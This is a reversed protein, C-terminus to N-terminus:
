KWLNEANSVVIDWVERMKNVKSTKRGQPTSSPKQTNQPVAKAKGSTKPDASVRIMALKTSSGLFQTYDRMQERDPPDNSDLFKVEVWHLINDITPAKMIDKVVIVDAGWRGKGPSEMFQHRPPNAGAVMLPQKTKKDYIVEAKIPCKHEMVIDVLAFIVQVAKQRLHRLGGWLSIVKDTATEKKPAKGTAGGIQNSFCCVKCIVSKFLIPKKTYVEYWAGVSSPRSPATPKTSGSPKPTTSGRQEKKIDTAVETAFSFIFEILNQAISAGIDALFPALHKKVIETTVKTAQNLLKKLVYLLVRLLFAIVVYAAAVVPAVM